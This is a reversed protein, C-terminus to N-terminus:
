SSLIRRHGSSFPLTKLHEKEIWDYSTIKKLVKSRCRVPYLKAKFKTFSHTIQPLKELVTAELDFAISIEKEIRRMGWVEEMEFYPFQYLGGMVKGLAEKKVLVRGEAELWIVVRKLHLTKPPANKIPLLLAKEKGLCNSKLPCIECRPKPTCVTAGLEILAEATVWPEDFDLLAEAGQSIKKKVDQKSVNEEICFYRSLVREVNGDVAVARKKFGFSLIAGITYPGLGRITKLNEAESPIKGGFQEVIQRAGQHLNRARAYYGLGEWAKIVTEISASALTNVDPFLHMWNEFYPVVVSARTQQLMVESIWVKYPTPHNRWPFSRRNERFWHILERMPFIIGYSWTIGLSAKSKAEKPM